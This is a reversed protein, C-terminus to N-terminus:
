WSDVNEAGSGDTQRTHDSQGQKAGPGRRMVRRGVWSHTVEAPGVLSKNV